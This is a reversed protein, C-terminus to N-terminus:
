YRCVCAMRTPKHEHQKGAATHGRPLPHERIQRSHSGTAVEQELRNPSIISFVLSHIILPHTREIQPTQLAEYQCTIFTRQQDEGAEENKPVASPPQTQTVVRNDHNPEAAGAFNV